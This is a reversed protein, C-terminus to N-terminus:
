AEDLSERREVIAEALDRLPQNRHSSWRLLVQFSQDLDLDYRQMLMGQAAGILHRSRVAQELGDVVRASSLALAAHTAYVEALDLDDRDFAGPRTSYLNIAGVPRPAPDDSQPAPLQVSVVSRVGLAAAARSWRPWRPDTATDQVLHPERSLASDLCPGEGVELQAADARRAVEETAGVTELRGRARRLTLSASDAAEVVELCRAVVQELTDEPTREVALGAVLRAFYPADREDRPTM